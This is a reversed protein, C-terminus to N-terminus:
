RNQHTVMRPTLPTEPVPSCSPIMRRRLWGVAVLGLQPRRIFRIGVLLADALESGQPM